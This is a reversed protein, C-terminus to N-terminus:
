RYVIPFVWTGAHEIVAHAEEQWGTLNAMGTVTFVSFASFKRWLTLM